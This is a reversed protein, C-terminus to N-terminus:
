IHICKVRNIDMESNLHCMKPYTGRVEVKLYIGENKKKM